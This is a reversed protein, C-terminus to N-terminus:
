RPTPSAPTSTSISPLSTTQLFPCKTSTVAAIRRAPAARSAPRATPLTPTEPERSLVSRHREPGLGARIQRRVLLIASAQRRYLCQQRALNCFGDAPIRRCRRRVSGAHEPQGLRCAHLRRLDVAQRGRCRGQAGQDSIFRPFSRGAGLHIEGDVVVDHQRFYPRLPRPASADNVATQLNVAGHEETYVAEASFGQYHGGVM